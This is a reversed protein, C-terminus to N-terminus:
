NDKRGSKCEFSKHGVRGCTYCSVTKANRGSSRQVVKMVRDGSANTTPHCKEYNRLSVKFEMFTMQSERQTIVTIYTDYQVPLGKLIMAILLSDSIQEGATKLSTTATEARLVYDTLSGEGAM